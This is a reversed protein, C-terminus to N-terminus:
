VETFTVGLPSVEITVDVSDVGPIPKVKLKLIFKGASVMAPTNLVADELNRAKQDCEIVFDFIARNNLHGRLVPFLDNYTKSWLIPDHPEYISKKLLPSIELRLSLLYRRVNAWQLLSSLDSSGTRNGAITVTGTELAFWNIQDSALSDLVADSSGSLNPTASFATTTGRRPGAAALWPGPTKDINVSDNRSYAGALGGLNEYDRVSGDNALSDAYSLQGFHFCVYTSDIITGASYAGEQRRFDIADSVTVVSDPFSLHGFTGRAECLNKLTIQSTNETLGPIFLDIFDQDEYLPYAGTNPTEAGLLNAQTIGTLGDNGAALVYSGVQPLNTPAPNGSALDTLSWNGSTYSSITAVTVAHFDEDPIGPHSTSVKIDRAAANNTNQSVTVVVGNAWTGEEVASVKLTPLGASGDSGSIRGPVGITWGFKTAVAADGDFGIYVAAGTADTTLTVTGSDFTTTVGTIPAAVIANDLDEADVDALNPVTNPGASVAESTVFGLLANMSGGMVQVYSASGKLDSTIVIDTGSASVSASSLRGDNLILALITATVAAVTGAVGTIDGETINVEQISGRNLKIQLQAGGTFDWTEATVSTASAAVGSFTITDPTGDVDVTLVDGDTFFLGTYNTFAVAGLPNTGDDNISITSAVSTRTAFDSSDTMHVARSFRVKGGADLIHRCLALADSDALDYGYKTVLEPKSRILTSAQLPGKSAVGVVAMVAGRAVVFQSVDTETISVRSANVM